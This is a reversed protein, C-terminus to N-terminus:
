TTVEPCAQVELTETVQGHDSVECLPLALVRSLDQSLVCLPGQMGVRTPAPGACLTYCLGGWSSCSFALGALKAAGFPLFRSPKMGQPGSESLVRSGELVSDRPVSVGGPSM